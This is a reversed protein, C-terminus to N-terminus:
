EQGSTVDHVAAGVTELTREAFDILHQRGYSNREDDILERLRQEDYQIGAAAAAEYFESEPPMRVGVEWFRVNLRPHSRLFGLADQEAGNPGDPLVDQGETVRLLGDKFEYRVPTQTTQLHGFGNPTVVKSRRVLRYDMGKSRFEYVRQAVASM